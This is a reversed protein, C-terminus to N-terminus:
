KVKKIHKPWAFSMTTGQGIQSQVTIKGGQSEVIKKVISLGIGTAEMEDRSKLTQFVEFIKDFFKSEIGPGDDKIAFLYFGEKEKLEIEITGEKKHHHKISNGILNSLVQILPIKATKFIPCHSPYHITFCRNPDASEIIEKLVKKTNFLEINLDLRGARSYQLIGDILNAMRLTRQHLLALNEKSKEDLKDENDEEIWSALQQIARLPAKLDHSAIYAFHELEENSKILQNETRKAETIDKSIMVFGIPNGKRDHRVTLTVAATFFSGRKRICEFVGDAKGKQLANTIFEQVAGSEIDKPHHLIQMNKKNVMERALYGYDRRAGENWVLITGELDTAVISYEIVSEM